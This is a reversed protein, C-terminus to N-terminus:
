PTIRSVGPIDAIQERSHKGKTVLEHAHGVQKATLKPPLGTGSTERWMRAKM